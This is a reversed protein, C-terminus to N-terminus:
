NEEQVIKWSGNKFYDEVLQIPYGVTELGHRGMWRILVNDKDIVESVTYITEAGGTVQFKIGLIPLPFKIEINIKIM